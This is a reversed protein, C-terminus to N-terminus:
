FNDVIHIMNIQSDELLSAIKLWDVSRRYKKEVNEEWTAKSYTFLTDGIWFDVLSISEVNKQVECIFKKKRDSDLLFNDEVINNFYIKTGNQTAIRAHFIIENRL